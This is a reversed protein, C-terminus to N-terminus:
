GAAAAPLNQAAEGAVVGLDVLLPVAVLAPPREGVGGLAVADGGGHDAALAAPQDRDRPGGGQRGSGLPQGGGASPGPDEGPPPEGGLVGVGVGLEGARHEAGVVDVEAGAAMRGLFRVEQGVPD